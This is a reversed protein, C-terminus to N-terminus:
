GVRPMYDLIKELATAVRHKTETEATLFLALQSLEAECELATGEYLIVYRERTPLDARLEAQSASRAQVSLGSVHDLNILEGSYARKWM